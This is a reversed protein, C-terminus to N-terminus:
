ASEGLAAQLHTILARKGAQNMGPLEELRLSKLPAQGSLLALARAYPLRLTADPAGVAGPVGVLARGRTEVAFEHGEVSFQLRLRTRGNWRARLLAPAAVELWHPQQEQLGHRQPIFQGGWRLLSEVPERLTQGQATLQYHSGARGSLTSDQVLGHEKLTHLRGALLNPSCGPLGAQLEGFRRPGVLLERAILLTWRDGVLDLAVALGCMQGHEKM